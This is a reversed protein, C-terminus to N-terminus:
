VKGEESSSTFPVVICMRTRAMSALSWHPAQCSVLKRNGVRSTTSLPSPVAVMVKEGVSVPSSSSKKWSAVTLSILLVM